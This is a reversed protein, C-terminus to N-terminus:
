KQKLLRVVERFTGDGNKNDLNAQSICVNQPSNLELLHQYDSLGSIAELWKTRARMIIITKNLRMAEQVLYFQYEQSPLYPKSHKYKKSHYALFQISMLGNTLENRTVGAQELFKLKAAWWKYGGTDKLHPSLYLFPYEAKHTLNARIERVWYENDFNTTIDTKDFGPNLLLCIVKATRINGSYPEPFAEFKLRYDPKRNIYKPYNLDNIDCPAIFEPQRSLNLWPNVM